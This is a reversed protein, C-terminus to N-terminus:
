RRMPDQTSSFAHRSAAVHAVPYGPTTTATLRDAWSASGPEDVGDGLGQGPGAKVGM